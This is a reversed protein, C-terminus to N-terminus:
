IRATYPGCGSVIIYNILISKKSVKKKIYLFRHVTNKELKNCMNTEKNQM